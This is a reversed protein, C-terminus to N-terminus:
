SANEEAGAPGVLEGQHFNLFVLRIYYSAENISASLQDDLYTMNNNGCYQLARLPALKGNYDAFVIIHDIEQMGAKIKWRIVNGRSTQEVSLASVRDM